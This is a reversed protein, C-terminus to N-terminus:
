GPATRRLWLFQAGCASVCSALPGGRAGPTRLRPAITQSISFGDPYRRLRVFFAACGGSLHRLRWRCPTLRSCPPPAMFRLVAPPSAPLSRGWRSRGSDSGLLSRRGSPAATLIAACGCFFPSAALSVADAPLLAASGYVQAGCASVYSVLPGGRAVPSLLRPANTQCIAFGEPCRRLRVSFRRLRWFLPSAM